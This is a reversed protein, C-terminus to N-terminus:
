EFVEGSNGDVFVTKVVGKPSLTRVQYVPTRDSELLAVGLVRSSAYRQKVLSAARKSTISAPQAQRILQSPAVAGRQSNKQSQSQPSQSPHPQAMVPWQGVLCFLLLLRCLYRM